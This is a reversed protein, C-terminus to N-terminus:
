LDLFSQLVIILAGRVVVTWIAAQLDNAFSVKTITFVVVSWHM